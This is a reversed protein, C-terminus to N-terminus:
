QMRRVYHKEELRKILANYRRARKQELLERKLTEQVEELPRTRAKRRSEVKVITFGAKTEIPDSTEGVPLSFITKDIPDPRVGKRTSEWLGGNEARPGDSYLAALKVFDHQKRIRDMVLQVTEWAQARSRHQDVRVFIQRYRVSPPVHFRRPNEKYAARIEQPSVSLNREVFQNLIITRMLRKRVNEIHQKYTVGKKELDEKFAVDGGAKRRERDIRDHVLEELKKKFFEHRNILLNAEALLLKERILSELVDARVQEPPGSLAEHRTKEDLRAELDKIRQDVDESTIAEDDVVALVTARAELLERGFGVCAILPVILLACYLSPRTM